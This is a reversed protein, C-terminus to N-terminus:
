SPADAQVEASHESLACCSFPYCVISSTIIAAFNILLLRQAIFEDPSGRDRIHDLVSQFVDTQSSRFLETNFCRAQSFSLVRVPRGEWNDEHAALLKRREEVFPKVQVYTARVTRAMNNVM